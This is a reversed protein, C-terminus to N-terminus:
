RSASGDRPLCCAARLSVPRECPVAKGDCPAVERGTTAPLAATPPIMAPSRLARCTSPFTVACRSGCRSHMARRAPWEPAERRDVSRDGRADGPTRGKQALPAGENAREERRRGCLALIPQPSVAGLSQPRAARVVPSPKVPRRQARIRNRTPSPSTSASVGWESRLEGREMVALRVPRVGCQRAAARIRERPVRRSRTRTALVIGVGYVLGKWGKGVRRRAARRYDRTTHIDLSWGM